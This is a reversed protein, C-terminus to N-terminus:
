KKYSKNNCLNLHIHVVTVFEGTSEKFIVLRNTEKNNVIISEVQRHKQTPAEGVNKATWSTKM